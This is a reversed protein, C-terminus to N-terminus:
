RKRNRKFRDNWDKTRDLRQYQAYECPLAEYTIYRGGEGWRELESCFWDDKRILDHQDVRGNNHSIHIEESIPLLRDVLERTKRVDGRTWLYVHSVDLLLPLGERVIDEVRDACLIYDDSPMVEVIVRLGLYDELETRLRGIDKYECQNAKPSHISFFLVNHGKMQEKYVSWTEKRTLNFKLKRSGSYLGADHVAIQTGKEIMSLDSNSGVALELYEVKLPPSLLSYIELCEKFPRRGIATISLGKM